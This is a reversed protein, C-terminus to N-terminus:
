RSVNVKFRMVQRHNLAIELYELTHDKVVYDFEYIDNRQKYKVYQQKKIALTDQRRARKRKTIYDWYWIEPNRFANSNIQLDHFDGAYKLKFHITDGRKPTIVGSPPTILKINAIEDASYYPNSSFNEKTYHPLLVWKADEPFHNRAFEDAPTLWYYDDFQKRFSILKEDDNKACGGAAWTADLLYYNGNIKVANWAHDLTGVTGVQYYETRIYGPIMEAEIGAIECMKKFLMAYGECVAKKKDLVKNIYGTEWVKRKIDCDEGDDKCTYTKPEKGKYPYKNYFKFDYSINETIWRFIARVKLMEEPFPNTLEKTLRYIDDQYKVTMALTDAKSFDVVPKVSQSFVACTWFLVVLILLSKSRM